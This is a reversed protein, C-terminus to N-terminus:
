LLNPILGVQMPYYKSILWIHVQDQEWRQELHAVRELQLVQSTLVMVKVMTQTKLEMLTVRQLHQMMAVWGNKTMMLHRM